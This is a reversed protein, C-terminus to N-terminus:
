MFGRKLGWRRLRRPAEVWGFRATGYGEAREQDARGGGRQGDRGTNQRCGGRKIGRDEARVRSQRTEAEKFGDLRHALQSKGRNLNMWEARHFSQRSLKRSKVEVPECLVLLLLNM